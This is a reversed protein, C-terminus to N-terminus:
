KEGIRDIVAYMQGNQFKSVIVRDEAKLKNLLKIKGKQIGEPDVIIKHEGDHVDNTIFGEIEETTIECEIEYDTLHQAITIFEETIELKDDTIIIIPDVAKVTAFLADSPTQASQLQAVGQM